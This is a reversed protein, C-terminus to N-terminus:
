SVVVVALSTLSQHPFHSCVLPLSPPPVNGSNSRRHGMGWSRLISRPRSNRLSDILSGTSEACRVNADLFPNSSKNSPSTPTSSPIALPALEIPPAATPYHKHLTCLIRLARLVQPKLDQYDSSVSRTHSHIHAYIYTSMLFLCLHIYVHPICTFIKSVHQNSVPPLFSTCILLAVYPSFIGPCGSPNSGLAESWLQQCM